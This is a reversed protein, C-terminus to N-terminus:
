LMMIIVEPSRIILTQDALAAQGQMVSSCMEKEHLCGERSEAGAGLAGAACSIEFAVRLRHVSEARKGCRVLLVM